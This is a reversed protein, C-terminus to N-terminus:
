NNTIKYKLKNKYQKLILYVSFLFANQLKYEKIEKIERM